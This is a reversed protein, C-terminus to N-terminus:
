LGIVGALRRFVGSGGRVYRSKLAREVSWREHAPSLLGRLMEALPSDEIDLLIDDLNVRKISEILQYVSAGDFPFAGTAACLLSLGVGWSDILRASHNDLVFGEYLTEPSRFAVAGLQTLNSRGAVWASGFDILRVGDPVLLINDLKIDCHAVGKSHVAAVTRLLSRSVHRHLSAPLGRYQFRHVLTQLSTNGCYESCIFIQDNVSEVEELTAVNPLASLKRLADVENVAIDLQEDSRSSMLDIVKVACPARKEVHQGHYVNGFSGQALLRAIHIKGGVLHGIVPDKLETHDTKDTFAM